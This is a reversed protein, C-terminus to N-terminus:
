FIILAWAKNGRHLHVNETLNNEALKISFAFFDFM